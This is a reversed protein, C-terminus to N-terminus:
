KKRVVSVKARKNNGKKQRKNNNNKGKKEVGGGRRKAPISSTSSPSLSPSSSENTSRNKLVYGTPSATAQQPTGKTTKKKTVTTDTDYPVDKDTLVVVQDNSNPNEKGNDNTKNRCIRTGM